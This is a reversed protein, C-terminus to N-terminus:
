QAPVAASPEPLRGPSFRLGRPAEEGLLEGLRELVSGALQSLEFAWVSSSTAVHLVEDRAIRAPWANAAIVDGVAAPWVELVAVMRAPAGFRSLERKVENQLRDM